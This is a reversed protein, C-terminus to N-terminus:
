LIVCAILAGMTIKSDPNDSHILYTGALVLFVTKLQQMMMTFNTVFNSINKVKISSSASKATFFDWRKQAWNAANNTKLTELGEIAEVTLGQRQSSERMSENIYR